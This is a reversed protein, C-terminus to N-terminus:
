YRSTEEAKQRGRKKQGENLRAWEKRGYCAAYQKIAEERSQPKIIDNEIHLISLDNLSNLREKLTTILVQKTDNM